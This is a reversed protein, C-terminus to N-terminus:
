LEGENRRLFRVSMAVIRGMVTRAGIAFVVGTCSGQAVFTSNLALNRTELANESTQDATGPILDSKISLTTETLLFRFILMSQAYREGTLLSRDFRLDASAEVIRLDAPVRNGIQLKVVDGVLLDSAPITQNEGNRIVTADDASLSRISRM